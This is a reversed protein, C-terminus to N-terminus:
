EKERNINEKRKGKQASKRKRRKGTDKEKLLKRVGMRKIDREREV